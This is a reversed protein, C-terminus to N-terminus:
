GFTWRRWDDWTSFGDPKGGSSPHQVDYIYRKIGSPSAIKNLKQEPIMGDLISIQEIIDVSTSMDDVDYENWRIFDLHLGDIDYNNVIEMAVNVTYERVEQLGPSLCRYSTMFEGDVNTCVWESNEYAPAGPEMSSAHFVNFWAHLEIGRKHAEEIAYELPDYGPYTNGAYYGWPEYSSNYYATGSQRAHWLVANMNAKKLNDLIKRVQAKNEEVTRSERIHEWTIVWISRFEENNSSIALNFFLIIFVVALISRM